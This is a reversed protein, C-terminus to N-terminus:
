RPAWCAWSSGWPRSFLATWVCFPTLIMLICLLRPVILARVSGNDDHDDPKPKPKPSPPLPTGAATCSGRGPLCLQALELNSRDSSDRKSTSRERHPPAMEERGYVHPVADQHAFENFRKEGGFKNRPVYVSTSLVVSDSHDPRRSTFLSRPVDNVAYFSNTLVSAVFSFSSVLSACSADSRVAKKSLSADSAWLALVSGCTSSIAVSPAHERNLKQSVRFPNTTVSLDPSHFAIGEIQTSVPDRIKRHLCSLRGSNTLFSRLPFLLFTRDQSMFSLSITQTHRTSWRHDATM